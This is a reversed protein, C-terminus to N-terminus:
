PQVVTGDPQTITFIDNNGPTQEPDMRQKTDHKNKHEFLAVQQPGGLTGTKIFPKTLDSEYLNLYTHTVGRVVWKSDTRIITRLVYRNPVIQVIVFIGDTTYPDPKVLVAALAADMYDDSRPRNSNISLSGLAYMAQKGKYQTLIQHVRKSLGEIEADAFAEIEKLMDVNINANDSNSALHTNVWENITNFDSM